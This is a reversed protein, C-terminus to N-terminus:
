PLWEAPTDFGFIRAVAPVMRLPLNAGHNDKGREYAYLTSLPVDHGQRRLKDCVERPSLGSAHRLERLRRSVQTSYDTRKGM